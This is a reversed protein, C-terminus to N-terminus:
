PAEHGVRGFTDVADPLQEGEDGRRAPEEVVRGPAVEVLPVAQARSAPADRETAHVGMLDANAHPAAHGQAQHCVLPGEPM